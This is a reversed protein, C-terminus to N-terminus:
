LLTIKIIALSYYNYSNSISIPNVNLLIGAPRYKAKFYKGKVKVM